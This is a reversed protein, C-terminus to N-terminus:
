ITLIFQKEFNNISEWFHRSIRKKFGMTHNEYLRLVFFFMIMQGWPTYNHQNYEYRELSSSKEIISWKSSLNKVTLYFVLLNFFYEFKIFFVMKKSQANIVEQLSCFLPIGPETM